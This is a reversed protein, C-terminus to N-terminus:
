EAFPVDVTMGDRAAVTERFVERAEKVLDDATISYRASLHNLVLKRAQAALAVQAAERATSHMTERSREKEEEGFTAEHVLLDAGTAADVVSACPRTDGTLVVKRGPRKPGVVSDAILQRGDALVVSEGRQLKGWLPGEPIGLARAKDPDFRGYRENEVLAYGVTGGGHETAFVRITYGDRTGRGGDGIVDGPKVEEIQVEYPVREVGLMMASKLVQKAGRPGWLRLPEVRAQLGLTRILGIVGLFHDGHFHTFFIDNLAFSVGYRMMQRQTGEGCDFLLTEGERVLALSSVNREITPRAASTGLFTLTLM